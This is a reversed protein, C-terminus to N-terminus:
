ISISVISLLVFYSQSLKNEKFTQEREVFYGMIKLDYSNYSIVQSM